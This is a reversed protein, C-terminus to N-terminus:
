ESVRGALYQISMFCGDVSSSHVTCNVEVKSGNVDKDNVAIKSWENNWGFTVGNHM